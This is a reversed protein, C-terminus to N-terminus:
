LGAAFKYSSQPKFGAPLPGAVLTVQDHEQLTYSGFQTNPKGNVWMHVGGCYGGICSSNLRVGWVSMIQFLNAKFNKKDSEMHIVGTTDHTHVSALVSATQTAQDVIIGIDAPVPVKRLTGQDPVEITLHAHYHTEYATTMSGVNTLGLAPLAEALNTYNPLWTGQSIWDIEATTNRATVVSSNTDPGSSSSSNGRTVVLAAVIGIAALLIAGGVVWAWAPVGGSGGGGSRRGQRSIGDGTGLRRARNENTRQKQRQSM